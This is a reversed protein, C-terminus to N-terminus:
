LGINVKHNHIENNQYINALKNKKDFLIMFKSNCNSKSLYSCHCRYILGIADESESLNYHFYYSIGTLQLLRQRFYSKMKSINIEDVSKCKM